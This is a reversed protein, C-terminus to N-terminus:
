RGLARQTQAQYLADAPVEVTGMSDSLTIKRTTMAVRRVFEHYGITVGACGTSNIM